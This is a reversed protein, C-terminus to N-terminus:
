GVRSRAALARVPPAEAPTSNSRREGLGRDFEVGALAGGTLASAARDLTPYAKSYNGPGLDGLGLM